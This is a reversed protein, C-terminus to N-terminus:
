LFPSTIAIGWGGGTAFARYVREIPAVDLHITTKGTNVLLMQNKQKKLLLLYHGGSIDNRNNWTSSDVLVLVPGDILDAELEVASLMHPIIVGGVSEFKALSDFGDFEINKKNIAEYDQYLRSEPSCYLKVDLGHLLLRYALWAAWIDKPGDASTSPAIHYLSCIVDICASGCLTKDEKSIPFEALISPDMMRM